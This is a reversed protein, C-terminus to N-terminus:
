PQGPEAVSSSLVHGYSCRYTLGLELSIPITHFFSHPFIKKSSTLRVLPQWGAKAAGGERALPPTMDHM